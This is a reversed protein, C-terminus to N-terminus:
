LRAIRRQRLQLDRGALAADEDHALALRVNRRGGGGVRGDPEDEVVELRSQAADLLTWRRLLRGRRAALGGGGRLGLRSCPLPGRRSLLLRIRRLAAAITPTRPPM